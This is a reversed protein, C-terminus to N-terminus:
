FLDRLPETTLEPSMSKGVSLAPSLFSNCLIGAAVSVNLSGVDSQKSGPISLEVDANSRLHSRLGVGENGLMLICPYQSLPDGLEGITMSRTRRPDKKELPAVAAYIKWGLRRSETIFAEPKTVSFLSVNESAGASAKLVVPSFSASNRVSIALATVGLFGATRIIGGLNGPDVISDLLLILPRRDQSKLPLRFFDFTQKLTGNILAEERSQHDITVEFGYNGDRSMLRGLNVIPLRPLPSTELIYGNHPRGGSMKDMVRLWDEDAHVVGVGNQKALQELEADRDKKGRHRGSYIYLKYLKRRPMRRSKLAAEVVSTGYIFESAATTYPLSLPIHSHLKVVDQSQGSSASETPKASSRETRKQKQGELGCSFSPGDERTM